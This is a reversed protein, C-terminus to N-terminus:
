ALNWTEGRWFLLPQVFPWFVPYPLFKTMIDAVNQNSVIHCFKIFGAAIASRVRHYALALHRKSLMSHPITSSTVVSRNDGLLWTAKEVPVGMSRLTYRLDIVQDTADRAAVFESGYTATEVTSQKRSYWDVPTQNVLHLIGTASKGTVKCFMLNADVFSTMRVMKGKPPPHNPDIEEECEGYVSYMWDYEPMDFLQENPPIGTRFRIAADPNRRLYGYIRHLRKLHGEKPAARFSSMKMVAVAIDFRGLTICWQLAGIMSQYLTTKEEDLDDTLDLEPSDDKDMPSSYKKAETGFLRAYNDLMKEVYTKAGWYLTGDPDRGFNGGLHYEPIGVGKLIYKYKEALEDFFKQPAKMIAMLDDVYVCVYEYCDGADRIWLDPDARSPFFGMDRLTDALREHFRAGSTRLGYLAKVIILTHGELEGFEKGAIFYVKEKTYAELYANGIDGVMAELGNIEGILLALRMSRLSVVGSYVSEKPPETMHGGAVLRAKHRLDHKVAYVFHVRIKQYGEPAKGGKGLNKFTNYDDLQVLEQKEADQWKTNGNKADLLRAEHSSRPVQVGFMYIPARRISKLKAQKVLRGFKKQNKVIHRLHKWGPKDLLGHKHAYEAVTVPDDKSFIKLPEETISNDEWLVKLNYMSGLWNKDSPKLPGIHDLIKKFTWLRGPAMEEADQQDILDCIEQYSLIEEAGEDGVKCLLKINKHNEADQDNIKKVIEARLRQGDERDLLFSRGMLEEISFRPLKQESPDVGPPLVFDATSYLRQKVQEAATGEGDTSFSNAEEIIGLPDDAPNSARLNPNKGDLASRLVSRPIVKKTDDTLVWWTLVDGVNEAVGVWRGLKEKSQSPFGGDDDLYYVPEWWRFQLVASIDPVRGWAHQMPTIWGLSEVAMINSVYVVFLACLLWFEPPTGTRDMLTNVKKKIEQIGREMPNQQQNYPESFQQGIAFMRLIQQVTKSMYTKASDSRIHNPAGRDTILQELAQPFQAESKLPYLTTFRSKVGQFVQAMTCGAHGTIGDDHAPTDSFFVDTAVDENWRNVNAAPFRTKVHHRLPLRQSTRFFQTTNEFTKKITDINSWLLYPRMAEFNPKKPLISRPPRVAGTCCSYLKTMSSRICSMVNLEHDTFAEGYGDDCDVWDDLSEENESVDYFMDTNDPESDLSGPDWPLDSTMLVHPLTDLEQDTPPRMDMYCLGDRVALPIVYGDLTTLTQQGGCARPVDDLVHGFSRLQSASHITKGKGYNAYQHFIGILPGVTSHLLGAATAIPISNLKADAIGTIDVAQSTVDLIRVDQGALGGNCGGDILSGAIAQTQEHKSVRYSVAMNATFLQGDINIQTGPALRVQKTTQNAANASLLQRLLSGPAPSETTSSSPTSDSTSSSGSTTQAENVSRTSSSGGKEANKKAFAERRKKIFEDKQARTMTKWKDPPIKEPIGDTKKGKRDGSKKSNANNARRSQRSAKNAKNQQDLVKAHSLLIAYYQDYSLKTASGSTTQQVIKSMSVAQQLDTHDRIAADLWKRKESDAITEERIGELDLIKHEFLTFFAELPRSWSSTLRLKHIEDLIHEETLEASIGKVYAEVLGQYLAQADKDKEHARVFKISKATKLCRDFVSYLFKQQERFLAKEEETAPAYTPSLVNDMGHTMAISTFHRHWVAWKSDEKFEEYHTIDRKISKQFDRVLDPVTSTSYSTVASPTTNVPTSSTTSHGSRVFKVLTDKDLDFWTSVGDSSPHTKYWLQAQMLQRVVLPSPRHNEQVQACTFDHHELFLFDNIDTLGLDSFCAKLTGSDAEEGFVYCRLHRLAAVPDNSQSQSRTGVM